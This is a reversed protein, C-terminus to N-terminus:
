SNGAAAALEANGDSGDRVQVFRVIIRGSVRPM